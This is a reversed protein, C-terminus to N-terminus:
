GCSCLFPQGRVNVGVRVPRRVGEAQVGLVRPIEVEAELRRAVGLDVRPHHADDRVRKLQQLALVRVRPRQAVPELQPVLALHELHRAAPRPTVSPTLPQPNNNPSWVPGARPNGSKTIQKITIKCCRDPM